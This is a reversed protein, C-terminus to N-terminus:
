TIVAEPGFVSRLFSKAAEVEDETTGPVFVVEISVPENLKSSVQFEKIGPFGFIPQGFKAAEIVADPTSDAPSVGKLPTEGQPSSDSLNM